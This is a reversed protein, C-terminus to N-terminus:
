SAISNMPGGWCGSTKPTATGHRCRSFTAQFTYLPDRRMDIIRANPLVKAFLGLLEFNHLAKDIM